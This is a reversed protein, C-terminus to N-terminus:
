YWSAIMHCNPTIQEEPLQQPGRPDCGSRPSGRPAGIGGSSCIVWFGDTLIDLIHFIESSLENKHGHSGNM